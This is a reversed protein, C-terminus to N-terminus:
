QNYNGHKDQILITMAVNNVCDVEHGSIIIIIIVLIQLYNNFNNM